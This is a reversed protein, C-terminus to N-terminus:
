RNPKCRRVLTQGGRNADEVKAGRNADFHAALQQGAENYRRLTFNFAFNSLAEDYTLNM